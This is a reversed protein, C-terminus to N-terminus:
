SRSESGKRIQFGSNVRQSHLAREIPKWKLSKFCSFHTSKLRSRGLFGSESSIRASAMCPNLRRLIFLINGWLTCIRYPIPVATTISTFPTSWIIVFGILFRITIRFPKRITIREKTFLGMTISVMGFLSSFFPNEQFSNNETSSTQDQLAFSSWTVSVLLPCKNEMIMQHTLNWSIPCLTTNM